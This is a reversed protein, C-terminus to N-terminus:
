DPNGGKWVKWMYLITIVTLLGSIATFIVGFAVDDGFIKALGLELIRMAGTLSAWPGVKFQGGTRTTEEQATIESVFFAKSSGNIQENFIEYDSDINSQLTLMTQDENLQVVASNDIGFSVVYSIIAITFLTALVLGVIFKIEGM